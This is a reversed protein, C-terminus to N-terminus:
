KKVAAIHKIKHIKVGNDYWGWLEVLNGEQLIDSYKAYTKPFVVVDKIAMTSDSVTLFAMEKKSERTIHVRVQDLQACLHLKYGDGMSRTSRCTDRASPLYMYVDEFTGSLPMGLLDSEHTLSLEIDDNFSSKMYLEEYLRCLKARRPANPVFAGAEKRTDATEENGMEAILPLLGDEGLNEVVFAQEKKTLAHMTLYELEMQVRTMGFCDAAGSKILALAAARNVRNEFCKKVFDYFNEAGACKQIVAIAAAGVGKIHSLGFGITRDDLIEFDVNAVKVSPPTIRIDNMKADNIYDKIKEFSKQKDGLNKCKALNACFFEIPYNAKLYAGAYGLLAYAVSHSKNFGYGAGEKIYDWLAVAVDDLFGNEKALEMFRAEQKALLEPKKKGIAKRVIDAEQLTMGVMACMQLAQEQYIYVSKTPGLIPELDIHIYEEEAKGTKIKKYKATMGVDLCAPRILAILDSVESVSEPKLQKSWSRGLAQGLQFVGETRGEGLLQFTKDDELPLGEFDLDIDHRDRILRLTMRATDLENLGLLDIKLYGMEDITDMDWGCIQGKNKRDRVLPLNGDSFSRSNIIVAAAHKGYSVWRGELKRAVTFVEEYKEEYEQLKERQDIADALKVHTSHADDKEPVLATISNAEAFPVGYTRMVNKLVSRATMKGFTILQSVRDRGYKEAVYNIVEERREKEIDLDVDPFSAARGVNYFREWVLEWEIPDLNKGTIGLLYLTLSGGASGRGYGVLIDNLKAWAIIDEIILFYEAMGAQEIDSLERKMREVYVDRNPREDIKFRKWGAYTKERLIDIASKGKPLDVSPLNRGGFGIEFEEVMGAITQTMEIEAPTCDFLLCEESTKLYYQDTGAYASSRLDGINRAMNIGLLYQHAEADDEKAFHADVTFVTPRGYEAAIERIRKNLAVQDLTDEKIGVDQVEFFFYEGFAEVLLKAMFESEDDRGELWPRSVLGKPCGSLIILGEKHEILNMVDIRPEHYYNSPSNAITTLKVMNEWGTRNRALVTIHHSKGRGIGHEKQSEVSHVIYFESGLIPKVGKKTCAKHFAPHYFINGHDTVAIANAGSEHAFDAFEEAMIMGDISTLASATSHCHLHVM